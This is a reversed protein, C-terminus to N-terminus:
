ERPNHIRWPDHDRREDDNQRHLSVADKQRSLFLPRRHMEIITVPSAGVHFIIAPILSHNLHCKM